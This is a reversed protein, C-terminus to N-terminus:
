NLTRAEQQPELSNALENIQTLADENDAASQTIEQIAYIFTVLLSGIVLADENTSLLANRIAEDTSIEKEILSDDAAM